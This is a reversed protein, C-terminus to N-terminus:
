EYNKSSICKNLIVLQVKWEGSVKHDNILDNLYPRIVDLYEELLLNKNDDGESTYETYNNRRDAFGEDAKKPKFFYFM